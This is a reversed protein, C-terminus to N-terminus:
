SRYRINFGSIGRHAPLLAPFRRTAHANHGKRSLATVNGAFCMGSFEVPNSPRNDSRRPIKVSKMWGDFPACPVTCRFSRAPVALVPTQARETFRAL